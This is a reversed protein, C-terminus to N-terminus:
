KKMSTRRENILRVGKFKSTSLMKSKGEKLPFNTIEAINPIVIEHAIRKPMLSKSSGNAHGVEDNM